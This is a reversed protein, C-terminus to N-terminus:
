RSLLKSWCFTMSCKGRVRRFKADEQMTAVRRFIRSCMTTGNIYWSRIISQVRSDMNNDLDRETGTNTLTWIDFYPPFEPMRPDPRFGARAPSLVHICNALSGTGPLIQCIAGLHEICGPGTKIDPPQITCSLWLHSASWRVEKWRAMVAGLAKKWYYCANEANSM